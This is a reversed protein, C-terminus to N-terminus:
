PQKDLATVAAYTVVGYVLHPLLDSAWDAASWARPDSVRLGAMPLDSAAMALVGTVVGGLWLPMRVGARRILSVGAGVSCGVAIGSLAGLGTLRNARGGGSDPVKHGLSTAVADVVQEPTASAPRGRVAMDGYTVANMLTTGAAGAACGRAISDIM